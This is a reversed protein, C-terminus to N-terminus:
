AARMLIGDVPKVPEPLDADGTMQRLGAEITRCLSFMPADNMLGEFPNERYDCIFAMTLFVRGILPCVPITFQM